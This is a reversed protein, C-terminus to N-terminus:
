PLEKASPEDSTKKDALYTRHFSHLSPELLIRQFGEDIVQPDAHAADQVKSIETYVRVMDLRYAPDFDDLSFIDPVKEGSVRRTALRVGYHFGRQYDGSIPEQVNDWLDVEDDGSRAEKALEARWYSETARCASDFLKAKLDKLATEKEEL